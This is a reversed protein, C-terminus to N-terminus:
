RPPRKVGVMTCLGTISRAHGPIVSQPKLLACAARVPRPPVPCSGCLNLAPLEFSYFVSLHSILLRLVDTVSASPEAAGLGDDDDNLEWSEADIIREIYRFVRPFPPARSEPRPGWPVTRSACVSSCGGRM